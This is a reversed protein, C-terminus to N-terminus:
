CQMACHPILTDLPPDRYARSPLWLVWLVWLPVWLYIKGCLKVKMALKNTIILARSSQLTKFCHVVDRM